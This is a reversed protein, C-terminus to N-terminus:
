SKGYLKEYKNLWEQLKKLNFIEGTSKYTATGGFSLLCLEAIKLSHYKCPNKDM